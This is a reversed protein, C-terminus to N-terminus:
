YLLQLFHQARLPKLSQTPLRVRATTADSGQIGCQLCLSTQRGKQQGGWWRGEEEEEEEKRGEKRDWM